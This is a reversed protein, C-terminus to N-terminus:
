VASIEKASICLCVSLRFSNVLSHFFSSQQMSALVM